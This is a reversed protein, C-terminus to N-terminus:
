KVLEKKLKNVDIKVLKFDADINYKKGTALDYGKIIPRGGRKTEVNLFMFTEKHGEIAFLQGARMSTIKVAPTLVSNDKGLVAKVFPELSFQNRYIPVIIGKGNYRGVWKTRKMEMFTVKEGTVLELIDGKEVIKMDKGVPMVTKTKM